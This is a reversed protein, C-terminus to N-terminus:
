HISTSEDLPALKLNVVSLLGQLRQSKEIKEQRRDRLERTGRSFVFFLGGTLAGGTGIGFQAVKTTTDTDTHPIGHKMMYYEGVATAALAAVGAAKSLGRLLLQDNNAEFWQWENELSGKLQHELLERSEHNLDRVTSQRLEIGEPLEALAIGDVELPILSGGEDALLGVFTTDLPSPVDIPEPHKM